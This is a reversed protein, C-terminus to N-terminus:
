SDALNVLISLSSLLALLFFLYGRGHHSRKNASFLRRKSWQLEAKGLDDFTSGHYRM